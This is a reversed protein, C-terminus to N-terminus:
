KSLFRELRAVAEETVERSGFSTLRFFGEGNNGFGAGPTGVVQIGNLLKDFFEWSGLGDPCKLWVYPSNKGGTYWINLRDMC